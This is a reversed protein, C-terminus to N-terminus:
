FGEPGQSREAGLESAPGGHTLLEKRYDASEMWVLGVDRRYRATFRRTSGDALAWEAEVELVAEGPRDADYVVRSSYDGRTPRPGLGQCEGEWTWELLPNEQSQLFLLPPEFVQARWVPLWSVRVRVEHLRAEDEDQSVVYRSTRTGSDVRLEVRGPRRGEEVTVVQVFVRGEEEVRYRWWRGVDLPHYAALSIAPNM